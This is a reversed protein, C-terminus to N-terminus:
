GKMMFLRWWPVNQDDHHEYHYGFFYCSIMAWLHNKRLTRAKHIGMEPTHPLRHPWYVGFYFLQFTGLIAPLAWYVLIKAEGWAPFLYLLLNFVVAMVIIQFLTLYRWMFVAWWRWFNQSGVFYDPDGEGAVYRHHLGHNKRLKRYSMGAYLFVAVTGTLTNVWQYRSVNGHMADHGTIFLGTYMYAQIFIHLYMWPNVLSFQVFVFMYALHGAWLLVVTLAILIGM